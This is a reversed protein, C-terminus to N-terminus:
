GGAGGTFRWGALRVAPAVVRGPGYECDALRAEAAVGLVRGPALAEVFSQTFRLNTVPRVVRGDEIVFTGNRTLGTVGVTKPDLVRCYNFCTVLLGRGASGVLDEMAAGGGAVVLDAADPGWVASAPMAHGTSVAGLRAASRRDHVLGVCRGAEVLHARTRATGETDVGIGVSRTDYVDDVLSFATDFPSAGVEVFSQGEEVAKANFGYSALFTVVEAVCEPLLVVEYEGPEVEGAGVASACGRAAQGGVVAGDLDALHVSTAHGYGAPTYGGEPAALFIGDLTARTCRDSARQGASTAVATVVAETDCYGAAEQGAAGSAVFAAVRQAREAPEAVATAEDWHGAASTAGTPAVGAWAPDPPVVAAAECARRVVDALAEGDTRNTSAGANRAGDAVLVSVSVREDAVNQHIRSNAFRTLAHSAADVRVLAEWGRPVLHLAAEGVELLHAATPLGVASGSVGVGGGPRGPVAGAVRRARHPRGAHAPGEWLEAGGLVGM